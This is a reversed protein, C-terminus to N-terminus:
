SSRPSPSRWAPSAAAARAPAPQRRASSPRGPRPPRRGSRPPRGRSGSGTGPRRSTGRRGPACAAPPRRSRAPRAAELSQALLDVDLVHAGVRHARQVDAVGAVAGHAVGQATDEGEDAVVHRRLVVHVVGARLHHEEALRQRRAVALLEADIRLHRLVAILALVHDIEGATEDGLDAVLVPRRDLGGSGLHREQRVVDDGLDLEPAPVAHQLREAHRQLTQADTVVHPRVLAGHVAALPRVAAEVALHGLRQGIQVALTEEVLLFAGDPELRGAVAVVLVAHEIREM